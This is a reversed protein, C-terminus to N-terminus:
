TCFLCNSGSAVTEVSLRTVLSLSQLALQFMPIEQVAAQHDLGYYNCVVINKPFLLQMLVFYIVQLNYM